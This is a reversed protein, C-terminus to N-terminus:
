NKPPKPMVFAASTTTPAAAAAAACIDMLTLSTFLWYKLSVSCYVTTM